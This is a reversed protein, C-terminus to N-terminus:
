KRGVESWVVPIIGNSILKYVTWVSTHPVIFKEYMSGNKWGYIKLKHGFFKYGHYVFVDYSSIIVTCCCLSM